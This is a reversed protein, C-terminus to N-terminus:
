KYFRFKHSTETWPEFSDASLAVSFPIDAPLITPKTLPVNEPTRCIMRHYSLIEAEVIMYDSPTGFRCRPRDDSELEVFGSGHVIVDTGGLTPGQQPTIASITYPVFYTSGTDGQDDNPISWSHSNLSAVAALREGEPVTQIDEVVCRLQTDSVFIATGYSEGIKCGLKALPFDARFGKGYFNIVGLGIAPGNRPFIDFVEPQPYYQFGGEFYKWTQGNAAVGLNVNGYFEDGENAKPLACRIETWSVSIPESITDNLLCLPKLDTKFGQGQISIYETGAGSSPGSRPHARDIKYLLFHLGISDYDIGNFTIQLSM